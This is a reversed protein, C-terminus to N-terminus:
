RASDVGPNLSDNTPPAPQTQESQPNQSSDKGVTAKGSSDAAGSEKGGSAVLGATAQTTWRM